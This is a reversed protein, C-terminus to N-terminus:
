VLPPSLHCIESVVQHVEIDCCFGPCPFLLQECVGPSDVGPWPCWSWDRLALFAVPMSRGACFGTEVRKVRIIHKGIKNTWM